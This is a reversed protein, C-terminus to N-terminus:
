SEALVSDTAMCRAGSRGRRLVFFSKMQDASWSWANLVALPDSVIAGVREKKSALLGVRRHVSALLCPRPNMKCCFVSSSVQARMWAPDRKRVSASDRYATMSSSSSAIEQAMMFHLINRAPKGCKLTM